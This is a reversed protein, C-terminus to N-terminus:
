EVATLSQLADRDIKGRPTRPIETVLLISRPVKHDALRARCWALVSEYTLRQPQCAIVVRVTQADTNLCPVGLAVVEEVGRLGALVLEIEGPDVKNGKVNIVRDTRRLLRLEGDKWQALDGSRFEGDFSLGTPDNVYGFAVASSAINVVGQETSEDLPQLAIRVGDIPTGVTERLAAGGDRDYCIGGCESAGYFVHVSRGYTERFRLATEAPLPAGASIVLRVSPPWAPPRSMKLLAQLFAPVTPFVTARAATAAHIPALPTSVDPVVLVSGRVLAPLAISSFGYSHSLPVAAVIRDDCRLSMTSALAREDALLAESSVAIGRTKGTSGSSLKVIATGDPLSPRDSPSLVEKVFGSKDKPWGGRARVILEAGLTQAARQVDAPPAQDDLLLVVLGRRRLALFAALFAPGAPVALGVLSRPPLTRPLAAAIGSALAAVDTWTCTKHGPSTVLEATPSRAGVREFAEVIPDRM